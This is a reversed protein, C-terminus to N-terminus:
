LRESNNLSIIVADPMFREQNLGFTTAQSTENSWPAGVQREAQGHAEVVGNSGSVFCNLAPPLSTADPYGFAHLVIQLNRSGLKLFRFISGDPAAINAEDNRSYRHM